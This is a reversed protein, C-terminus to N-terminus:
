NPEYVCYNGFYHLTIVIFHRSSNMVTALDFTVTFHSQESIQTSYNKHAHGYADNLRSVM